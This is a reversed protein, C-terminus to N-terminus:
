GEIDQMSGCVTSQNMARGEHSARADDSILEAKAVLHYQIQIVRRCRDDHAAAHLSKDFRTRCIKM